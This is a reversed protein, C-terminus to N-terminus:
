SSKRRQKRKEFVVSPEYRLSGPPKSWLRGDNQPRIVQSGTLILPM